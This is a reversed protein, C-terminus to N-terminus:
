EPGTDIDGIDGDRLHLLVEGGGAKAVAEHFRVIRILLSGADIM